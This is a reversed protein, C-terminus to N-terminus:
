RQKAIVLSKHWNYLLTKRTTNARNRAGICMTFQFNEGALVIRHSGAIQKAISCLEGLCM